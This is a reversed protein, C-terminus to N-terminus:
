DKRQTGPLPKAYAPRRRHCSMGVSRGTRAKRTVNRKTGGSGEVPEAVASAAKNVPKVPVILPDSKEEEHMMPKPERRGM